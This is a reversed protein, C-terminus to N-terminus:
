EPEMMAAALQRLRRAVAALGNLRTPSIEKELGLASPWDCAWAAVAGPPCGDALRVSVGVLGRVMPSDAAVRCRFLGDENRADLFVRSLCGPVRLADDTEAAPLEPARRGWAALAALRERADPLARFDEVLVTQSDVPNMDPLM